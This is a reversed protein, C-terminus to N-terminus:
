LEQDALRFVGVRGRSQRTGSETPVAVGPASGLTRVRTGNSPAGRFAFARAESRKSDDREAADGVAGTLLAVASKVQRSRM